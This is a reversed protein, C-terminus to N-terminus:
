KKVKKRKDIDIFGDKIDGRTGVEVAAITNIGACFGM